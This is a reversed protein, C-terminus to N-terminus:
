CCPSWHDCCLRVCLKFVNLIHISNCFIYKGAAFLFTFSFGFVFLKNASFHLKLKAWVTPLDAYIETFAALKRIYLQSTAMNWNPSSHLYMRYYWAAGFWEPGDPSNTAFWSWGWQRQTKKWWTRSTSQRRPPDRPGGPAPVSGAKSATHSLNLTFLLDALCLFLFWIVGFSRICVERCYEVSGGHWPTVHTCFVHFFINGEIYLFTKSAPTRPQFSSLEKRGEALPWSYWVLHGAERYQTKGLNLFPCLLM